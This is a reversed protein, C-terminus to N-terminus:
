APTQAHGLAEGIGRLYGIYFLGLQCIFAILRAFQKVENIKGNIHVHAIQEPGFGHLVEPEAPANVMTGANKFGGAHKAADLTATVVIGEVQLVVPLVANVGAELNGDGSIPLACTQVGTM